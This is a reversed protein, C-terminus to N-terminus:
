LEAAFAEMPEAVDAAAVAVDEETFVEFPKDMGDADGLLCFFLRLRGDKFCACVM